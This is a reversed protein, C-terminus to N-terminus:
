YLLSMSPIVSALSINKAIELIRPTEADQRNVGIIDIIPVHFDVGGGQGDCLGQLAFLDAETEGLGAVTLDLAEVRRDICKNRYSIDNGRWLVAPNRPAGFPRRPLRRNALPNSRPLFRGECHCQRIDGDRDLVQVLGGPDAGCCARKEELVVNGFLICNGDALEFGGSRVDDALGVRVLNCQAHGIDVRM